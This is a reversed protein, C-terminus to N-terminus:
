ELSHKAPTVCNKACACLVKSRLKPMLKWCALAVWKIFIVDNNFRKRLRFSKQEFILNFNPAIADLAVSSPCSLTAAAWFATLVFWNLWLSAPSRYQRGLLVTCLCTEFSSMPTPATIALETQPRGFWSPIPPYLLGACLILDLIKYPWKDSWYWIQNAM